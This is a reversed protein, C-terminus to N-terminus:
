PAAEQGVPEAVGELRRCRHRGDEARKSGVM